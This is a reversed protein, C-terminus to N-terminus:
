SMVTDLILATRLNPCVAFSKMEDWNEDKVM